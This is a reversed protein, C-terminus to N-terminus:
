RKWVKLIIDNFEDVLRVINVVGMAPKVRVVIDFPKEIKNRIINEVVFGLKRKLKNRFTARLDVKRSVIFVCRIHPTSGPIYNINLGKGRFFVGKKLVRLIDVNENLRNRRAFM